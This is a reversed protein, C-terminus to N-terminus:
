ESKKRKLLVDLCYATTTIGVAEWGEEGAENLVKILIEPYGESVIKYEWKVSLTAM